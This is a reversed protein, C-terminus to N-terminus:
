LSNSVLLQIKNLLWLYFVFMGVKYFQIKVLEKMCTKYGGFKKLKNKKLKSIVEGSKIIYQVCM